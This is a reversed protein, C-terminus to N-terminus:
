KENKKVILKVGDVKQIVVQMDPPIIEEDDESIASWIEGHFKVEGIGKLNNIEKTVIAIKGVVGNMNLEDKAQNKFFKNTLPKMFIVLTISVLLFAVIQITLNATFYTLLLSVMAGIAFWFLFFTPCVLEGIFFIVAIILWIIAM